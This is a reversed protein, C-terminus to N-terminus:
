IYIDIISGKERFKDSDLETGSSMVVPRQHNQSFIPLPSENRITKDGHLAAVTIPWKNAADINM